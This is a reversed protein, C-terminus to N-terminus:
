AFHTPLATRPRHCVPTDHAIHTHTYCAGHSFTHLAFPIDHTHPLTLTHYIFVSPITHHIAHLHAPIPLSYQPCTATPGTHPAIPHPPAPMPHTYIPTRPHCPLMPPGDRGWCHLLVLNGEQLLPSPGLHQPTSLYLGTFAAWRVVAWDVRCNRCRPTNGTFVAARGDWGAWCPCDADRFGGPLGVLFPRPPFPLRAYL